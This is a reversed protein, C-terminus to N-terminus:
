RKKVHKKLGQMEAKNVEMEEKFRRRIKAKDEETIKKGLYKKMRIQEEIWM